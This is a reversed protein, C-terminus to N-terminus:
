FGAGSLSSPAPDLIVMQKDKVTAIALARQNTGDSMLRFVGGTGTFSASTLAKATLADGRGAKALAGIASIGDYALGSLPHASTSYVSSYRGAYAQRRAADPVAFWIGDAGPLSFLDPRVDLRGLGAYQVQAPDAGNDPLQNLLMPLAANQAEPTLFVTDAAGSKLTAAARQAASTVGEVSLAYPESAVVRVGNVTAAQEFAIKGFQGPVDDSYVIVAGTKGTKKAHGMLRNAVNAFTEGLIFVNGGAIAPNNSFGLVNIGEDAVALGAANVADARLPGLIIKAGEDVAKQAQAAATAAQGATDYVRLDITVGDQEQMALRAANELSKAIPGAEPDSQPVLLAVQIPKTPDIKPGTASAAGTSNLSIPECATIALAALAAAVPRLVKRATSFRAFM